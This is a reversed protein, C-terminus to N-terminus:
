KGLRNCLGQAQGEVHHSVVGKDSTIEALRIRTQPLKEVIDTGPGAHKEEILEVGDSLLAAVRVLRAFDLPDYREKQHLQVLKWAVHDDDCCCVVGFEEIAGDPAPELKAKTKRSRVLLLDLNEEITHHRM